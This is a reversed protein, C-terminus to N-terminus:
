TATRSYHFQQSHIDKKLQKMRCCSHFQKQKLSYSRRGGNDDTENWTAQVFWSFCVVFCVCKNIDVWWGVVLLFTSWQFICYLCTEYLVVWCTLLFFFFGGFQRVTNCLDERTVFKNLDTNEVIVENLESNSIMSCMDKVYMVLLLTHVFATLGTM